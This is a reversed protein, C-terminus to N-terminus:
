SRLIHILMPRPITLFSLFMGHLHIPHPVPITTEIVFYVWQDEESLLHVADAAEWTTENNYVKLLSPDEWEVAMSTTGIRWKFFSNSFGIAVPLSETSAEAGVTKSVYPVLSTSAIDICGDTFSYGTTTPDSTSSADYRIIGKIDDANTNSSCASQPIARLWYDGDAQDAEVIM